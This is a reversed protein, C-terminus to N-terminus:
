KLDLLEQCIMAARRDPCVIATPEGDENSSVARYLMGQYHDREVDHRSIGYLAQLLKLTDEEASFPEVVFDM